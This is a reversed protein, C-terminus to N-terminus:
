TVFCDRCTCDCLCDDMPTGKNPCDDQHQIKSPDHGDTVRVGLPAYFKQITMDDSM